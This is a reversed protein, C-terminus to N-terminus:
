RHRHVHLRIQGKFRSGLADADQSQRSQPIDAVQHRDDPRNLFIPRPRPNGPHDSPQFMLQDAINFADFKNFIILFRSQDTNDPQSPCQGTVPKRYQQLHLRCQSGAQNGHHNRGLDSQSKMAPHGLVKLPQKGMGCGSAGLSVIIDEADKDDVPLLLVLKGFYFTNGDIGNWGPYHKM